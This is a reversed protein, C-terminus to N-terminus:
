VVPDNVGGAPDTITAWTHAPPEPVPAPMVIVIDSVPPRAHVCCATEEDDSLKWGVHIKVAVTAPGGGGSARPRARAPRVHARLNRLRVGGHSGGGSGGGGPGVPFWGPPRTM